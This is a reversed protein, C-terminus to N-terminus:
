VTPPNLSKAPSSHRDPTALKETPPADYLAKLDDIQRSQRFHDYAEARARDGVTRARGPDSFVDEIREALMRPRGDRTLFATHRDELMECTIADAYAVIPRGAAMALATMTPWAVGPPLLIVDAFAFAAVPDPASFYRLADPTMLRKRLSELEVFRGPTWALMRVSRDLVHSLCGTWAAASRAPGLPPLPCVILRDDPGYGYRAREADREGPPVALSVGPRVLATSEIPVGGEVWARRETDSDCVVRVARHRVAVRLWAIHQPTPPRTATFLTPTGAVVAVGLARMGFAHVVPRDPRSRVLRRVAPALRDVHLPVATAGPVRDTLTRVLREVALPPSPDHLLVPPPM